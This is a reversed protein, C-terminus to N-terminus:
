PSAGEYSRRGRLPACSTSRPPGPHLAFGEPTTHPLRGCAGQDVGTRKWYRALIGGHNGLTLSEEWVHRRASGMSFVQCVGHEGMPMGRVNREATTAHAM